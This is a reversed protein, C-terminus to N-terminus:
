RAHTMPVLVQETQPAPTIAPIPAFLAPSTTRLYSLASAFWRMVGCSYPVDFIAAFGDDAIAELRVGAQLPVIRCRPSMWYFRHRGEQECEVLRAKFLVRLHHSILKASKTQIIGALESVSIRPGAIYFLIEVRTWDHLAEHVQYVNSWRPEHLDKSGM